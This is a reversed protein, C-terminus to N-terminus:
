RLANYPCRSTMVRILTSIHKYLQLTGQHNRAKLIQEQYLHLGREVKESFLHFAPNVRMKEFAKPFLHTHTIRPMARLKLSISRNGSAADCCIYDIFLGAQEALLVTDVIIGKHEESTFQGLDVIGEAKGSTQVVVNESLKMEDLVLAGHCQLESMDATKEKLAAFTTPNFGFGNKYWRLYKKTHDAWPSRPHQETSPPQIATPQSRGTRRDSSPPPAGFWVFKHPPPSPPTSFRASAANACREAHPPPTAKRSGRRLATARPGVVHGAATPPRFSETVATKTCTPSQNPQHPHFIPCQLQCQTPPTVEAPANRLSQEEKSRDKRKQATKKTLYKPLNPFVTPVADPALLPISRKM